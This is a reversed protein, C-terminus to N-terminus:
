NDRVLLLAHELAVAPTEGLAQAVAGFEGMRFDMRSRLLKKLSTAPIGTLNALEEYTLNRESKRGRLYDAIATKQAGGDPKQLM